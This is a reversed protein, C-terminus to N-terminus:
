APSGAGSMWAVAGARAAWNVYREARLATANAQFLSLVTTAPPSGGDDMTVSGQRATTLRLGDDAVAVALADIAILQGAAAPTVVLTIGLRALDLHACRAARGWSMVLVPAVAPAIADLVAGLDAQMDGTSPTESVGNLLGAPRSNDGATADLLASDVGLAVAGALQTTLGDLSRADTARALENSIVISSETKRPALDVGLFGMASIPKVAGAAVWSSSPATALAATARNLPAVMAGATVLRALVSTRSVQALFGAALPALAGFEGNTGIGMADQASKRVLDVFRDPVCRSFHALRLSRDGECVHNALALAVFARASLHNELDSTFTSLREREM